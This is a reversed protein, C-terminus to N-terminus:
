RKTAKWTGTFPNNTQASTVAGSISTGNALTGTFTAIPSGTGHDNDTFTVANARTVTGSMDQRPVTDTVGSSCTEAWTQSYGTFAVSDTQSLVLQAAEHCTNSSLTIDVTMDWTGAINPPAAPATSDNCGVLVGLTVVALITRM